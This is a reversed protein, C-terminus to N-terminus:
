TIGTVFFRMGDEAYLYRSTHTIKPLATATSVLMGVAALAHTTSRESQSSM